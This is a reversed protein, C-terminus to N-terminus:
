KLVLVQDRAGGGRPGKEPTPRIEEAPASFKVGGGGWWQAREGGGAWGGRGRADVGATKLFLLVAPTAGSYLGASIIADTHVGACCEKADWIPRGTPRRKGLRRARGRRFSDRYVHRGKPVCTDRTRYM